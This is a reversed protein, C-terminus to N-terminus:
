SVKTSKGTTNQYERVLPNIRVMIADVQGCVEIGKLRFDCNTAVNVAVEVADRADDDAVITMEKDQWDGQLISIGEERRTQYKILYLTM